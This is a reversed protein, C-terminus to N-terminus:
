ITFFETTGLARPPLDNRKLFFVVVFHHPATFFLHVRAFALAFNCPDFGSAVGLWRLTPAIRHARFSALGEGLLTHRPLEQSTFVGLGKRKERLVPCYYSVHRRCSSLSLVFWRGVSMMFRFNLFCAPMSVCASAVFFFSSGSFFFLKPWRPRARDRTPSSRAFGCNHSPKSKPVFSCFFFYFFYFFYFFFLVSTGLLATSEGMLCHDGLTSTGHHYQM